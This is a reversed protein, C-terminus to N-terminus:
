GGTVDFVGTNKFIEQTADDWSMFHVDEIKPPNEIAQILANEYNDITTKVGYKVTEELAMNPVVVPICKALQAKVASLCFLEVGQGPHLWFESERYLQVMSEEDIDKSYTCVLMAGTREKVNDFIGKLFDAGRDPSSSYLCLGKNKIPNLFQRPHCGLPIIRSNLGFINQHFKSLVIRENFNKYSNEKAKFWSNWYINYQGLHPPTSNCALIIDKGIFASRPLYVVNEFTCPMGDYYVIVECVSSLVRATEVVFEPTGGCYRTPHWQWESPLEETWIEIM